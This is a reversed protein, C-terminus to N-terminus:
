CRKNRNQKYRPNAVDLGSFISLCCSSRHWKRNQNPLIQHRVIFSAAQRNIGKEETLSYAEFEEAGYRQVRAGGHLEDNSM